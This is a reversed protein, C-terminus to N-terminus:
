IRPPRPIRTVATFLEVVLGQLYIPHDRAQGIVDADYGGGRFLATYALGNLKGEEAARLLETLVRILETDPKVKVVSLSREM